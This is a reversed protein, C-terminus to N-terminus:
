FWETKGAQAVSRTANVRLTTFATSQSLGDLVGVSITNRGRELILSVSCTGTGCEAHHVDSLEGKANAVAFALTVPGEAGAVRVTLPVTCTQMECRSIEGTVVVLPLDNHRVPQDTLLNAIVQTDVQTTLSRFPLVRGISPRGAYDTPAPPPAVTKYATPTASIFATALLCAPIRSGIRM